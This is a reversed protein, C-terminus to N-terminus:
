FPRSATMDFVASRGAERDAGAEEMGHEKNWAAVAQDTARVFWNDYYPREAEDMWRDLRKWLRARTQNHAPDDLLNVSQYLDGGSWLRHEGAETVAYTFEDTVMGRWVLEHRSGRNNMNSPHALFVSDPRPAEPDGRLLESLDTGPLSAVYDASEGLGAAQLGALSALTPFADITSTPAALRLDAPLQGPWRVLFPIRVSEDNPHRKQGYAVGNIGTM